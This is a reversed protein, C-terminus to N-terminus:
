SSAAARSGAHPGRAGCMQRFRACVSDDAGRVRDRREPRGHVRLEGEPQGKRQAHRHPGARLDPAATSSGSRRRGTANVVTEPTKPKTKGRKSVEIKGLRKFFTVIETVYVPPRDVTQRSYMGLAGVLGARPHILDKAANRTAPPYVSEVPRPDGRPHGHQLGGVRPPSGEPGRVRAVPRGAQGARPAPGGVGRQSRGGFLFRVNRYSLRLVVSPGNIM